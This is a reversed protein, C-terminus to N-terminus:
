LVEHERGLAEFVLQIVRVRHARVNDPHCAQLASRKDHRTGRRPQVHGDNSSEGTGYVQQLLLERCAPLDADQFVLRPRSVHLHPLDQQDEHRIGRKNPQAHRNNSSSKSAGYVQQLLLQRCAPVHDDSSVLKVRCVHLHPLDRQNDHTIGKRSAQAHSDNSSSKCTGYM